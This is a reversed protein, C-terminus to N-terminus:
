TDSKKIKQSVFDFINQAIKALDEAEQISIFQDNPFMTIDMYPNLKQIDKQFQLFELDFQACQNLFIILDHVGSDFEMGPITVSQKQFVLYAKLSKEISQHVYFAVYKKDFSFLVGAAKFDRQAIKLWEHFDKHRIM